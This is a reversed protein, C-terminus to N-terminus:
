AIIEQVSALDNLNAPHHVPDFGLMIASSDGTAVAMTHVMAVFAFDNQVDLEESKCNIIAQDDDNSAKVFQTIAKGTIDKNGTGSSDTAQQLKFDLTGSTGLTGSQLIAMVSRYQSMDVWSSTLAGAANADPDIVAVVAARESALSTM